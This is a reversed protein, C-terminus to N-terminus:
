AAMDAPATRSRVSIPAVNACTEVGDLEQFSYGKLLKESCDLAGIGHRPIGLSTRLEFLNETFRDEFRVGLIPRARRGHIWANAFVSLETGLNDPRLLLHGLMATAAIFLCSYDLTNGSLFAFVGIEGLITPPYGTVIHLVDHIQRGRHSAWESDTMAGDPSLRRYFDPDYGSEMATLLVSGLTGRKCPELQERSYSFDVGYRAAMLRATDPDARVHQLMLRDLGLKVSADAIDFAGEINKM